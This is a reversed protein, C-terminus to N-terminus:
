GSAAPTTWVGCAWADAQAEAAEPVVPFPALPHWALGGYRVWAIPSLGRSRMLAPLDYGLLGPHDAPWLRGAESAGDSQGAAVARVWDMAQPSVLWDHDQSIQQDIRRVLARVYSALAQGCDTLEAALVVLGGPRLGLLARDLADAPDISASLVGWLVVADAPGDGADKGRIPLGQPLHGLSRIRPMGLRRGPIRVGQMARRLPELHFEAPGPPRLSAWDRGCRTQQMTKRGAPPLSAAGERWALRQPGDPKPQWPALLHRRLACALALKGEMAEIERMPQDSLRDRHRLAYPRAFRVMSEVIRANDATKQDDHVRLCAVPHDITEFRARAQLLALWLEHDMSYHNAENLGGVGAFLSRRFFAEPQVILRGAFWRSRLRLLNELDIPEPPRPSFVTRGEQVFRCRGVLVDPADDRALRELVPGLAGPEYWDDANLWTAYRGRAHVLLGANIAASQGGDPKSQWYALQGARELLSVTQDTSGGDMVIHEVGWRRAQPSAMERAVSELCAGIYRGQNLSPTVISLLPEPVGPLM